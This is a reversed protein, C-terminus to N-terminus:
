ELGLFDLAAAHRACDAETYTMVNPSLGVLSFSENYKPMGHKGIFTHALLLHERQDLTPREALRAAVFENVEYQKAQEPTADAPVAAKPQEAPKEQDNKSETPLSQQAFPNGTNEPAVQATTGAPTTEPKVDALAAKAEAGHEALNADATANARDHAAEAAADAPSNAKTRRKRKAPEEATATGANGGGSGGVADFTPGFSTAGSTSFEQVGVLKGAAEKVANTLETSDVRMEVTVADTDRKAFGAWQLFHELEHMDHFEFRM